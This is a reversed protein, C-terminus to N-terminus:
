NSTATITLPAALDLTIREGDGTVFDWENIGQVFQAHVQVSWVAPFLFGSLVGGDTNDQFQWDGDAGEPVGFFEKPGDDALVVSVGSPLSLFQQRVVGMPQSEGSSDFDIGHETILSLLGSTSDRYFYLESTQLKEFGTHASKSEYGYFSVVDQARVIPSVARTLAGQEIILLPQGADGPDHTCPPSAGSGGDCVDVEPSSLGTRAGCGATLLFVIARVHRQM